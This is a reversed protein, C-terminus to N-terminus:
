RWKPLYTPPPQCIRSPKVWHMTWPYAAPCARIARWHAVCGRGAGARGCFWGVRLPPRGGAAGDELDGPLWGPGQGELNGPAERCCVARQCAGGCPASGGAAARSCSAGADGGRPECLAGVKGASPEAAGSHQPQACAAMGASGAPAPGEAPSQAVEMPAAADAHEGATSGGGQASSRGSSGGSGGSGPRLWAVLLQQLLRDSVVQSIQTQLGAQQQHPMTAKLWSLVQLPLAACCAAKSKCAQRGSSVRGPSRSPLVLLPAHLGRAFAEAWGAGWQAGCGGATGHGAPHLVPVACGAGGARWLQPAPFPCVSSNGLATQTAGHSRQLPRQGSRRYSSKRSLADKVLPVLFPPSGEWVGRGLCAHGWRFHRLLLPLLQEEEKALHKRLTIHIEEVKCALQRRSACRVACRPSPPSSTAACCQPWGRAFVVWCAALWMRICAQLRASRVQRDVGAAQWDAAARPEAAAVAACVAAGAGCCAAAPPAPVM